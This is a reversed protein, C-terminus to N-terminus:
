RKFENPEKTYAAYKVIQYLRGTGKCPNCDLQQYTTKMTSYETQYGYVHGKGSCQKCLVINLESEIYPDPEVIM